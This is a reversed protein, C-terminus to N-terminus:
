EALGNFVDRHAFIAQELNASAREHDSMLRQLTGRYAPDLSYMIECLEELLATTTEQADHAATMTNKLPRRLEKYLEDRSLRDTSATTSM